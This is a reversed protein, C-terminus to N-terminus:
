NPHKNCRYCPKKALRRMASNFSNCLKCIWSMEEGEGEGVPEVNCARLQEATFRFKM